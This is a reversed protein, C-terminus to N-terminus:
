NSVSLNYVCVQNESRKLNDVRLDEIYVHLNYLKKM